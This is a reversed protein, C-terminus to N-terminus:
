FGVHGTIRVILVLPSGIEGWKNIMHTSPMDLKVLFLVCSPESCPTRILFSAGM